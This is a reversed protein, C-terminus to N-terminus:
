VPPEAGRETHGLTGHLERWQEFFYNSCEKFLNVAKQENQYINFPM